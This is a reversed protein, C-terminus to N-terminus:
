LLDLLSNKIAAMDEETVPLLTITGHPTPIEKTAYGDGHIPCYSAINHGSAECGCLYVIKALM